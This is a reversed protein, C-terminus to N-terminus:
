YSFPSSLVPSVLLKFYRSIPGIRVFLSLYIVGKQLKDEVAVAGLLILDKEVMESAKELLEEREPGITTKAHTFIKNWREYEEVELQRYAFALTRYGDEAYNSLHSATAEQYSRGNEALRDFIISSVFINSHSVSISGYINCFSLFFSLLFLVIM